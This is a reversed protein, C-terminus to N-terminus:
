YAGLLEAFERYHVEVEHYGESHGYEWALDYLKDKKPHKQLGFQIELKLKHAERELREREWRKLVESHNAQRVVKSSAKM